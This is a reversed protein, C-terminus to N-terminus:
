EGDEDPVVLYIEGDKVTVEYTEVAVTAPLSLVAGTHLDFVSNHASCEITKGDIWGESLKWHEHTCRDAVAFLTGDDARALCVPLGMVSCGKLTGPPVEDLPALHFLNDDDTITEDRM